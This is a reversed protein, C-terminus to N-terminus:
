SRPLQIGVERERDTSEHFQQSVDDNMQNEIADTPLLRVTEESNEETDHRDGDDWNLEEHLVFSETLRDRIGTRARTM